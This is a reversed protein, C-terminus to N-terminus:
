LNKLITEFLDSKMVDGSTKFMSFQQHEKNLLKESKIDGLARLKLNRRKM